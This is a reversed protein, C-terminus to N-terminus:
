KLGLKKNEKLLAISEELRKQITEPRKANTIWLTYQRQNTASLKTFNSLAPENRALENLLYDPIEIEKITKEIVAENEWDIKGTKLYVDIKRLGAENMRGSKLLHIVKKKNIVSWNSTNTRPTFKRAYKDDDIKKIISDIWGFCLAEDLAEDYDICEIHTHKKYYIMWIGPSKEHNLQLWDHFVSKNKFHMYELEQM